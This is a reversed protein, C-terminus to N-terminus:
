YWYWNLMIGEFVLTEYCYMVDHMWSWSAIIATGVRSPDAGGTHNM